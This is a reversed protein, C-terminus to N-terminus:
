ELVHVHRVLSRHVRREFRSEVTWGADEATEAHDRDAVLVCRRGVRRAEALADAVLVGLDAAAIKSQRGYPADFVVADVADDALPLRTADGRCVATAADVDVDADALNRATGRVMKAQADVGVVDAGLLAGELLIGGTGCFPDLLRSDPGVGALNCLARALIPDMSGPQFFPRDTPARDGFARDATAALWGVACVGDGGDAEGGDAFLARLEHDPDDLDVAFGRHVLVDGLAREVDATSVGTTSRVDRARVAVTGSRDLPAAEVLARAAAPDADTRGVLESVRHTFALGRLRDPAISDALAVGAALPDVGTAAARAERRAFADDDREGALELVYVGPPPLPPPMLADTPPPNFVGNL